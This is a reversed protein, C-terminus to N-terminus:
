EYLSVPIVSVSTMGTVSLTLIDSKVPGVSRQIDAQYLVGYMIEELIAIFVISIGQLSFVACKETYTIKSTFSASVVLM